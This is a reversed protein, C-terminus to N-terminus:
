IREGHGPWFLRVRGDMQCGGCYSFTVGAFAPAWSRPHLLQIGARAVGRTRETLARTRFSSQINVEKRDQSKHERSPGPFSPGTDRAQRYRWIWTCRGRGTLFASAPGPLRFRAGQISHDLRPDGCNVWSSCQEPRDPRRTGTRRREHFQRTDAKRALVAANGSAVARQDGTRFRVTPTLPGAEHRVGM